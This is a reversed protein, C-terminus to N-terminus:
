PWSNATRAAMLSAKALVSSPKKQAQEQRSPMRTRIRILQLQRALVYVMRILPHNDPLAQTGTERIGASAPM